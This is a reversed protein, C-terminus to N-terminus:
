KRGFDAPIEGWAKTQWKYIPARFANNALWKEGRRIVEFLQANGPTAAVKTRCQGREIWGIAIKSDTYIPLVVNHKQMWALAHVIALFEGINNTGDPYPGQIFLQKKSPLHVGRYEMPGPNRSCAADVTLAEGNPYPVKPDAKQTTKKTKAPALTDPNVKFAYEAEAKSEFSRYRAGPFGMINAQCEKWTNYIGPKRGKWVVYFKPPKRKSM